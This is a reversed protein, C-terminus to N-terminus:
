IGLIRIKTHITKNDIGLLRAAKAKNGGTQELVTTLVQRELDHITRQVIEKLSCGKGRFKFQEMYTPATKIAERPIDLDYETVENESLLVARRVCSRLERVNGPWEYSKLSAIASESFGKIRKGLEKDAEELFREALYSIDESRERLAPIRITFENLRYYLDKRFTGSEVSKSLDLNTAVLLRVDVDIQHSAGVRYVKKEQIARLFKAQSGLPMNSIEDLFLTGKCAAEFKGMHQSSAGTFSGKEHGFLESEFLTEPIAGCDVTVFPYKARPSTNHISRAVLEKGSGTEGLIVVNFDSKAVRNVQSILDGILEGPGMLRSLSFPNETDNELVNHKKKQKSEAVAHSAVRLIEGHDFPKTLYDYAGERMADVAGEVNAYATMMIIPIEPNIEKTKRLVEMGDLGPIKFDLFMVDPHGDRVINLGAFGDSATLVTYGKETLLHSLIDCIYIEDDIILIKIKTKEMM